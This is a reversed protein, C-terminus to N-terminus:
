PTIYSARSKGQGFTKKPTDYLIDIFSCAFLRRSTRARDFRYGVRRACLNTGCWVFINAETEGFLFLGKLM